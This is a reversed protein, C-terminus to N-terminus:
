AFVVPLLYSIYCIIATCADYDPPNKKQHSFPNLIYYNQGTFTVNMQSLHHSLSLFHQQSRPPTQQQQPYVPVSCVGVSEVAQKSCTTVANVPVFIDDAILPDARECPAQASDSTKLTAAKTM